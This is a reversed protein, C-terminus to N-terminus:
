PSRIQSRQHNMFIWRCFSLVLRHSDCSLWQMLIVGEAPPIAFRMKSTLDRSNGAIEAVGSGAEEKGGECVVDGGVLLLRLQHSRVLIRM